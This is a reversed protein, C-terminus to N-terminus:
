HPALTRLTEVSRYRTKMTMWFAYGAALAYIGALDFWSLFRAGDVAFFAITLMFVFVGLGFMTIAPGFDALMSLSPHLVAFDQNPYAAKLRQEELVSRQKHQRGLVFFVMALVVFVFGLVNAM